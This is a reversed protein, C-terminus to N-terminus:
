GNVSAPTPQRPDGMRHSRPAGETVAMMTTLETKLFKSNTGKNRWRGWSVSSRTPPFWTVIMVSDGAGLSGAM